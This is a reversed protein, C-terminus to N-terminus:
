LRALLEESDTVKVILPLLLRPDRSVGFGKKGLSGLEEEVSHPYRRSVVVVLGGCTYLVELRVM